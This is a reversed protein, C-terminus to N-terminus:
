WTGYYIGMEKARDTRAEVGEDSLTTRRRRDAFWELLKESMRRREETFRPHAGLDVFEDPDSELDFLQPRFGQWHVYKWRSDRAMWGHCEAPARGLLRRARRFSYDIESFVCDRGAHQAERLMPLLSEGELSQDPPDIGLAKLITPLLDIAQVLESTSTGRTSDAPRSPDHILLPVRTVVEHFLDKEGMWHDGGYDGHDSTFVVLTEDAVGLRQLEELIRGIHHDLQEILGMYTPRVHRAVADRAFNTCEEHQLYAAYVPHPDDLERASKCIPLLEEVPYRANYPAPAMYPWHPKVYSLHLVFPAKGRSRLYDLAVNTIYATESHEERVKAPLHANRMFWGSAANGDPGDASIVFDNWPHKSEYGRARLYRAYPGDRPPHDETRDVAVFGGQALHIGRESTPDVGLRALGELDPVVHTKGILAVERGAGRLYDGLTWERVSLPVRNWTAGHSTVYRGTYISMRSPGCVGAQVYARDFRLSRRALADLHPTRMAAHGYCGLHDWRLQDSM